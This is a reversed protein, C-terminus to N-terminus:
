IRGLIQERVRSVLKAHRIRVNDKMNVSILMFTIDKEDEITVQVPEIEESTPYILGGVSTGLRKCYFALQYMDASSPVKKTLLDEASYEKNKVDLVAMCSGTREDYEILVDPSFGRAINKNEFTVSAFSKEEKFKEVRESLGTKLVKRVYQEFVTNSNQLFVSWEISGNRYSIKVDRLIRMAYELVLPYHNNASFFKRISTEAVEYSGSYIDIMDFERLIATIRSTVTPDPESLLLKNLASKIVQNSVVNLTYQEEVVSIGSVPIKAPHFEELIIQGNVTMSSGSRGVINGTLGLKLLNDCSNCFHTALTRIGFSADHKYSSSLLDAEFKDSNTFLIMEFFNELTFAPNRPIIEVLTDKLQIQGITYSSFNLSDGRVSFPLDPNKKLIELASDLYTKELPVSENEYVRIKKNQFM